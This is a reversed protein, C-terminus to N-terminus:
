KRLISYKIEAIKWDEETDIDQVELDSLIIAGSNETFINKLQLFKDTKMWYFQGSDHFRSPLDQSRSKLFEPYVMSVKGEIIQLSRQIPYSFKLVPFLSDYESKKMLNYAEILREPSIFPATSLICCFYDFHRNRKNYESIVELLVDSLTSFDDSTNKNRFFPVQAGHKEAIEAIEKDETSVMVEDFLNSGLATQISYAIIPKGCFEKINKRPIRKSGGRAPIIALNNM